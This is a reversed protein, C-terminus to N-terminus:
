EGGSPLERREHHRDMRREVPLLVQLVVLTAIAGLIAVRYRGGGAAMGIAANIWIIAATTLGKVSGGTRLIAGGGLFGVGTVIQAAIRTPDAPVGPSLEISMITFLASGVAILTNTRLGAAKQSWERELGIAAGLGAALGLRVLLQAVSLEDIPFRWSTQQCGISDYIL